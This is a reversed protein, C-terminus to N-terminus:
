DSTREGDFQDLREGRDVISAVRSLLEELEAPEAWGFIQCAARTGLLMSHSAFLGADREWGKPTTEGIVVVGEENPMAYLESTAAWTGHVFM